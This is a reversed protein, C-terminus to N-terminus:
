QKYYIDKILKQYYEPSQIPTCIPTDTPYDWSLFIKGPDTNGGKKLMMIDYSPLLKLGLITLFAVIDIHWFRRLLAKTHEQHGFSNQNDSQFVVEPITFNSTVLITSRTLQPTKYKQDIAFGAEDCLTKIFNISLKDVGDHDLDELMVHSHHTPDFLDFFKNYLNKKFTKPYVYSLIASKGIGPAGHLWIHPHGDSKLKDKSQMIMAKLKEGYQLYTRPYKTFAEKEHDDQIMQRMDILVEDIKRKKEEESRKTFAGPRQIDAPMTGLELLCDAEPNIKSEKKIHHAKWGSYPYDRNRPVLYYGNGTKINLANLITRKSTINFMILCCHVHEVGYSSHWSKEGIEVGGVLAYKLTGSEYATRVSQILQTLDSGLQVNFRADWQRDTHTFPVFSPTTTDSPVQISM